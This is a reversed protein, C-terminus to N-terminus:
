HTVAARAVVSRGDQSLRVFYLGASLRGAEELELAHHGPGMGLDRTLVRRGTVDLLDLTAARDSALTFSVHIPGSSPNPHTGRIALTSRAADGVDLLPQFIRTAYISPGSRNDWWAVIAGNAGDECMAAPIQDGTATCLAEGNATSGPVLAGASTVHAVYLDYEGSRRDSWAVFAGGYGDRAIVPYMQQLSAICLPLNEAQWGSPFAGASDLRQVYIDYGGNRTDM